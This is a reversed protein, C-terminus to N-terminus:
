EPLGALRYGEFLRAIDQERRWPIYERKNMLLKDDVERLRRALDRAEEIRGALAHAVCSSRLASGLKPQRILAQDGLHCAEDYRGLFVFIFAKFVDILVNQPDIPNLRTARDLQMLAEEHQGLWASVSGRTQWAYALNANLHIARDVLISATEHERFVYGYMRAADSLAGADHQGFKVAGEV